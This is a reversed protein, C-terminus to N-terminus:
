LNLEHALSLSAHIFILCKSMLKGVAFEVLMIFILLSPVRKTGVANPLQWENMSGWM